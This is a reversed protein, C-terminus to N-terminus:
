LEKKEKKQEFSVSGLSKVLLTCKILITLTKDVMKSNNLIQSCHMLPNDERLLIWRVLFLFITNSIVKCDRFYQRYLARSTLDEIYNLLRQIKLRLRRWLSATCDTTNVTIHTHTHTNWTNRLLPKSLCVFADCLSWGSQNLTQIKEVTNDACSFHINRGKKADHASRQQLIAWIGKAERLIM